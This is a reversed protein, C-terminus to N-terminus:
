NKGVGYKVVVPVECGGIRRYVASYVNADPLETLKHPGASRGRGSAYYSTTRTCNSSPRSIARPADPAAVAPTPAAWILATALFLM